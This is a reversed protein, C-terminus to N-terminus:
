LEVVVTDEDDDADLVALAAEPPDKVFGYGAWAEVFEGVPIHGSQRAPRDSFWVVQPSVGRLTLEFRSTGQIPEMTRADATPAFLLGIELAQLKRAPQERASASACATAAVMVLGLVGVAPARLRRRRLGPGDQTVANVPEAIRM